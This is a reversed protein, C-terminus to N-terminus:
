SRTLADFEQPQALRQIEKLLALLEPADRFKIELLFDPGEFAAPPKLRILPTQQWGLRGLAAGFSEQAASLRPYVRRYLHRRVKASREQPTRHPEGLAAQLEMRALVAAPSSGERRALLGVQELFEEQKSQSLPLHELFPQAAARDAPSWEALLAGATLALRGEAALRQWPAELDALKLLRELHAPSPPLGLYPLYSAAVTAEGEHAALRAALEAQEKLNFGRSFANDFLHVLLCFFDSAEAPVLRATIERWGLAATAWLRRRGTVVTFREGGPRPRLWPPNILGIAEMSATLRELDPPMATPVAALDLDIQSLAVAQWRM